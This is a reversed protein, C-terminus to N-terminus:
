RNNKCACGSGIEKPKKTFADPRKELAQEIALKRRGGVHSEEETNLCSVCLCADNCLKGKQFCECYLKLCRSKVCNCIIDGPKRTAAGEKKGRTFARPNRALINRIARTREGDVGSEAPTNKCNTCSCRGSCRRGAKFCDCYLKICGSRPCSCGTANEQLPGLDLTASCLLELSSTASDSHHYAPRMRKSPAPECTSDESIVPCYGFSPIMARKANDTATQTHARANGQMPMSKLTSSNNKESHGYPTQEVEVQLETASGESAARIGKWERLSSSSSEALSTDIRTNDAVREPRLQHTSAVNWRPATGPRLSSMGMMTSVSQKTTSMKRQSYIAGHQDRWVTDAHISHNEFRRQPQAQTIAYYSVNENARGQPVTNDLYEQRRRDEYRGVPPTAQSHLLISQERPSRLQEFSASRPDVQMVYGGRQHSQAVPFSSPTYRLAAADGTPAHHFTPRPEPWSRTRTAQHTITQSGAWSHQGLHHRYQNQQQQSQQSPQARQPQFQAAPLPPSPQFRNIQEFSWNTRRVQPVIDDRVDERERYTRPTNSDDSNSPQRPLLREPPSENQRSMSSATFRGKKVPATVTYPENDTSSPVYSSLMKNHDSSNTTHNHTTPQHQRALSRPNISNLFDHRVLIEIVVSTM